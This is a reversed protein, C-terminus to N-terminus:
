RGRRRRSELDLVRKAAEPGLRAELETRKWTRIQEFGARVEDAREFRGDEDFGGPGAFDFGLSERLQRRKESELVLVGAVQDRDADALGLETAIAAARTEARRQEFEAARLSREAVQKVREEALADRVLAKVAEADSAGFAGSRAAPSEAPAPAVAARVPAASAIEGQLLAVSRELEGLRRDLDGSRDLLAPLDSPAPPVAPAGAPPVAGSTEPAGSRRDLATVLVATAASAGFATTLVLAFTKM